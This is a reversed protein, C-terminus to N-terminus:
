RVQVWEKIFSKAGLSGLFNKWEHAHKSLLASLRKETEEPSLNLAPAILIAHRKVIPAADAEAMDALHDMHLVGAIAYERFARTLKQFSKDVAEDLTAASLDTVVYADSRENLGAAHVSMRRLMCAACVGCQRLKRNVSSTNNGKWCSRTTEWDSGGCLYVFERLTEAKTSWIRPFIVKIDTGLLSNIFREMKKAFLPHNRYDSYSHGVNVLPPGFIGQGSEPIVIEDADALYAAISSILTFKFGRSRGSPETNRTKRPVRYPVSTFPERSVMKIKRDWRKSGIRVRVLKEGLAKGLIGAVSRSDMGDSYPLVSQTEVPFNLYEPRQRYEETSRPLFDFHWHDGTLFEIADRLAGTVSQASWRDPHHVPIRVFIRRAWGLSPRRLTKDGFEIAAALVMADFILPEWRAYAYSLLGETSFKVDRGLVLPIHGNRPHGAQEIVDIKIQPESIGTNESSM